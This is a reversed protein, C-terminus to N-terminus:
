KQALNVIGQAKLKEVTKDADFVTKFIAEKVEGPSSETALRLVLKLNELMATLESRVDTEALSAPRLLVGFTMKEDCSCGPLITDDVPMQSARSSAGPIEGFYYDGRREDPFGDGTQFVLAWKYAAVRGKNEVSFRAVVQLMPMGEYLWADIEVGRLDFDL